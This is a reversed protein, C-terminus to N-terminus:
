LLGKDPDGGPVARFTEVRPPGVLADALASLGTVWPQAAHAALAAASSWREVFVFTLDDPGGRHLAYLLCGDEAHTPALAKSTRGRGCRGIGPKATLTAIVIVEPMSTSRHPQAVARGHPAPSDPLTWAGRVARVCGPRAAARRTLTHRHGQRRRRAPQSFLDYAAEIDDLAFRHTILQQLDLRGAKVLSMLQTM